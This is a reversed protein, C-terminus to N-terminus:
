SGIVLKSHPGAIGKVMWVTVVSLLIGTVFTWGIALLLALQPVAGGHDLALGGAFRAIPRLLPGHVFYIGFAYAAMLALWRGGPGTLRAGWKRLILLMIMSIALRLLFILSERLQMREPALPNGSRYDTVLIIISLGIVAWVLEVRYEACKGLITEIDSGVIVGITYVGLFYLVMSVTLETGTRPFFFPLLVIALAVWWMRKDRVIALLLPSVLYIIMIVPIYWLTNWAEGTLVNVLVERGADALTVSAPDRLLGYGLMALTLATSFLAFPLWVHLVRSVLFNRFPKRHLTYAYLCGSIFAFYFTSNYFAIDIFEKVPDFVSLDAEVGKQLVANGAHVAVVMLIAFGRFQDLYDLRARAHGIPKPTGPATGGRLAAGTLM